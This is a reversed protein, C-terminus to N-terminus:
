KVELSQGAVVEACAMASAVAGEHGSIHLIGGGEQIVQVPWDHLEQVVHITTSLSLGEVSITAEM